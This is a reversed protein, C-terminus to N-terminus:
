EARRAAIARAGGILICAGLFALLIAGWFGPVGEVLLGYVCGGIFAGLAGLFLDGKIGYTAEEM